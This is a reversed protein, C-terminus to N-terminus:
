KPDIIEDFPIIWLDGNGNETSQQMEQLQMLTIGAPYTKKIKSINSTFFLHRQDATVFPCYDLADTNILDLPRSAQWRGTKDKT